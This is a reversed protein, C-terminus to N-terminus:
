GEVLRKGLEMRRLRDYIDQREEPKSYLITVLYLTDEAAVECVVQWLPDDQDKKRRRKVESWGWHARAGSFEREEVDQMGDLDNNWEAAGHPNRCGSFRWVPSDSDEDWWMGNGGGQGVPSWEYRYIGPLPVRLADFPQMVEEKRYGIAFEEVMQPATDPIFPERGDLRCLLRYDELPLPLSPDLESAEELANIIYRNTQADEKSRASTAYYCDEWMRKLACNRFCLANDGPQEWLFFRHAIEELRDGQREQLWQKSFRGMPTILTGPIEQPQYQDEMWYRQLCANDELQNLIDDVERTLWPYFHEKQLREFDRDEWYGTDDRVELERLDKKGLLDLMEVVAKHFGAGLPTTDCGGTLRWQGLLGKEKQWGFDMYGGPCLVIRMGQEWFGVRLDLLSAMNKMSKVLNDRSRVRARYIIEINM